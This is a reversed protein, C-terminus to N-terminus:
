ASRVMAAQFKCFSYGNVTVSSGNGNYMYVEVFDTSGNFYVIGSGGISYGSLQAFRIYESSNRNLSLQMNNAGNIYVSCSIQYYGAITPTFRSSSYMGGTTDWDNTTYTLKTNTANTLTQGSSANYSFTPGYPAATAQTTSDSFTISPSSGNIITTM